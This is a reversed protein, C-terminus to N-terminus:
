PFTVDVAIIEFRGTLNFRKQMLFLRHLAENFLGKVAM